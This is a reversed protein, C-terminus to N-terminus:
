GRKLIDNIVCLIAWVGTAVSWHFELGFLSTIFYFLSCTLAWSLGLGFIMIIMTILVALWVWVNSRILFDFLKEM